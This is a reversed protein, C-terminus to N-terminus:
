MLEFVLSAAVSFMIIAICSDLIRWTIPKLFFLRLYRAGFAIGYFWLASSTIAGLVFWNKEIATLSTTVGGILFVTDIYVHPNAFTMLLASATILLWKHQVEQETELNVVQGKIASKLAMCGYVSLFVIGACMLVIKLTAYQQFLHGVGFAGASILLADGIFCITAVWVPYAQKLGCRLLFANQSGIAIILGASMVLGTFYVSWMDM